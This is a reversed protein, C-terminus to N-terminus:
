TSRATACRLPARPRLQMRSRRAARETTPTTVAARKRRLERALILGAQIAVRPALPVNKKTMQTHLVSVPCDLARCLSAVAIAESEYECLLGKLVCDKIKGNATAFTAASMSLAADLRRLAVHPCRILFKYECLELLLVEIYNLVEWNRMLNLRSAFKTDFFPQSDLKGALRLTARYLENEDYTRLYIKDLLARYGGAGACALDLVVCANAAVTDRVEAGHGVIADYFRTKLHLSAAGSRVCRLRSAALTSARSPEFLM